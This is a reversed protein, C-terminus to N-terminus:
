VVKLHKFLQHSYEFFENVNKAESAKKRYYDYGKYIESNDEKEIFEIDTLSDYNKKNNDKNIDEKGQIKKLMNSQFENILKEMTIIENELSEKNDWEDYKINKQTILHKLIIYNRIIDLDEKLFYKVNDILKGIYNVEFILDIILNGYYLGFFYEFFKGSEGKTANESARFYNDTYYKSNIPVIEILKMEANYFNRPSEYGTKFEFIFKNHCFSEHLMTKGVRMGYHKNIREEKIDNYEYLAPDKEYNNLSLLKNIFVVGYGKFNFGGEKKLFDVKKEYLFFVDPILEKLHNKIIECTEMNFGYITKNGSAEYIGSDLLLLPYFLYSQPTLNKIFESIFNFSIGFVSKPLIKDKRNKIYVLKSQKYENIDTFTIIYLIKSCILMIREYILLDKDELFEKYSTEFLELLDIISIYIIINEKYYIGIAYWLMYLYMLKYDEENKFENMLISKRQSFNIDIKSINYSNIVSLYKKENNENQLFLQKIEDYLNELDKEHMKIMKIVSFEEKEKILKTAFYQKSPDFFAVEFSNENECGVIKFKDVPYLIDNFYLSNPSNILIIRSRSDNDFSDKETLLEENYKIQVPKYFCIEYLNFTCKKLDLFCYAKNIGYYVNFKYIEVEDYSTDKMLKFKIVKREKSKRFIYEPIDITLTKPEKLSYISGFIECYEFYIKKKIINLVLKAKSKEM